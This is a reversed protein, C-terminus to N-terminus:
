FYRGDPSFRPAGGDATLEITKFLEGTQLAIADVVDDAPSGSSCRSTGACRAHITAAIGPSTPTRGAARRRGEGSGLWGTLVVIAAHM